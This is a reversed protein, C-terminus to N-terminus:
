TREERIDEDGKAMIGRDKYTKLVFSTSTSQVGELPSLKSAVFLAIEQFTKASVTLAVDYSGSMLMVTEVEEFGALLECIDDFGMSGSLSIKVTIQASVYNRDTKEWDILTKYGKIIGSEEYQSIKKNVEDLPMGTVAAIQNSTLRANNDLLMLIKNM